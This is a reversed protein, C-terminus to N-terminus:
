AADRDARKIRQKAPKPDAQTAATKAKPKIGVAEGLNQYAREVASTVTTGLDRVNQQVVQRQQARAVAREAANARVTSLTARGQGTADNLM